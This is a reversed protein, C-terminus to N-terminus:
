KRDVRDAIFTSLLITGIAVSLFFLVDRMDVVGRSISSYHNQLVLWYAIFCTVVGILFSLLQNACFSGALIGLGIFSASLLALGLMSGIFQGGDINGIPEAMYYVIFYHVIAPLLAILTLTWAAMYKAFVIRLLSVPQARLLTWTGSKREEAFLRMTLAPCLLLLLWPSLQFMGDIQAYGSEIVNWEGPIVWLFLSITLLYLAIVIYAIPSSFYYSLEKRYVALINILHLM